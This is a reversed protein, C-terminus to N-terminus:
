PYIRKSKSFINTCHRITSSKATIENYILIKNDNYTTLVCVCWYLLGASISYPPNRHTATHRPFLGTFSPNTTITTIELGLNCDSGYACSFYFKFFYLSDKLMSPYGCTTTKEEDERSFTKIGEEKWEEVERPCVCLPKMRQYSFWANICSLKLNEESCPRVVAGRKRSRSREGEM